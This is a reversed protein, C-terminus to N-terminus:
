LSAAFFPEKKIASCNLGGSYGGGRAHWITRTFHLSYRDMRLRDNGLNDLDPDTIHIQLVTRYYPGVIRIRLVSGYYPDSM